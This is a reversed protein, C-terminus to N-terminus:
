KTKLKQASASTDPTPEKYYLFIFSFIYVGIMMSFASIYYPFACRSFREYQTHTFPRVSVQFIDILLPVITWFYRSLLKINQVESFDIKSIFNKKRILKKFCRNRHMLGM